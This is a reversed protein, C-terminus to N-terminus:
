ARLRRLIQGLDTRMSFTFRVAIGVRVPRDLQGHGGEEEINQVLFTGAFIGTGGTLGSNM